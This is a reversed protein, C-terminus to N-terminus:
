FFTEFLATATMNPVTVQMHDVLEQFAKKVDPDTESNPGIFENIFNQLKTSLLSGDDLGAVSTQLGFYMAANETNWGNANKNFLINKRELSYFDHNPMQMTTSGQTPIGFGLMRRYVDLEEALKKAREINGMFGDRRESLIRQTEGGASAAANSNNSNLSSFHSCMHLLQQRFRLDVESRFLLEGLTKPKQYGLKRVENWYLMKEAPAHSVSIVHTKIKINDVIESSNQRICADLFLQANKVVLKSRDYAHLKSLSEWREAM